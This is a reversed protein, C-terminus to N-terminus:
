AISADYCSVGQGQEQGTGGLGRSGLLGKTKDGEGSFFSYLPITKAM